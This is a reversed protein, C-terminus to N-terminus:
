EEYFCDGPWLYGPPPFAIFPVNQVCRCCQCRTGSSPKEIDRLRWGPLLSQWEEMPRLNQTKLMASGMVLTQM